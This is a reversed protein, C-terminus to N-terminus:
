LIMVELIIEGILGVGGAISLAPISWKEGKRFAYLIIIISLIGSMTMGLGNARFMVELLNSIEPQAISFSEFTTNSVQGLYFNMYSNPYVTGWLGFLLILCAPIMVIKWVFNNGM